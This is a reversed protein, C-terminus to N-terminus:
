TVEILKQALNQGFEDLSSCFIPNLFRSLYALKASKMKFPQLARFPGSVRGPLSNVDNTNPENAEMTKKMKM